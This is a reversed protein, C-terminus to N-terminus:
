KHDRWSRYGIRKEYLKGDVEVIQDEVIQDVHTWIHRHQVSSRGIVKQMESKVKNWPRGVQKRLYGKLPGLVDTFNKGNYGIRYKATEYAPLCDLKAFEEGRTDRDEFGRDIGKNPSYDRSGSRERETVVKHM